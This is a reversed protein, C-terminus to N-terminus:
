SQWVGRPLPTKLVRSLMIYDGTDSAWVCITSFLSDSNTGSVLYTPDRGVPVLEGVGM